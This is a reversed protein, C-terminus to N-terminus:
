KNIIEMKHASKLYILQKNPLIKITILILNHILSYIVLIIKLLMIKTIKIKNKIELKHCNKIKHIKIIKGQVQNERSNNSDKNLYRPIRLNTM